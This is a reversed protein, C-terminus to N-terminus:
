RGPRIPRLGLAVADDAVGDATQHGHQEATITLTLTTLASSLAAASKM